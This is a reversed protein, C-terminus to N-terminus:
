EYRLIDAPNEKSAKYAPYITAIFSILLSMTTILITDSISLRAPLNSLFYVAPNFLTTNTLSELWLKIENINSAFSAGIALGIFTGLFGIASGCILFIRMIQAKTMGLTRLLAINKKKDNVLMIMSSIVNFAAVLIILTLILFMATREVKLADIFSANTEQWDNIYTNKNNILQSIQIKADEIKSIDKIFIEIASISDNYKFHIQAMSFNMFITSSDYEYMGSDFIAGVTYTKIRPISGLITESIDASIIKLKDGINLNLSKAINIGIIVNNKNKINNIDGIIINNTILDKKIIDEYKIGKVFGGQNSKNASIMVQKEIIPNSHKILDINNINNIINQYDAINNDKSYITLHSNIGIIREVLEHRFGNMVAMVIILTAVGIMIGIFSFIATISIFGEKRKSRLYRWAILFELRSLM